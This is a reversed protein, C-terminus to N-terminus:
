RLHEVKTFRRFITDNKYTNGLNSLILKRNTINLQILNEIVKLSIEHIAGSNPSATNVSMWTRILGSPKVKELYDKDM